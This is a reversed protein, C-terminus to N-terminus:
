MPRKIRSRAPFAAGGGTQHRVAVAFGSTVVSLTEGNSWVGSTHATGSASTDIYSGSKACQPYVYWAPMIGWKSVIGTPDAWTRM